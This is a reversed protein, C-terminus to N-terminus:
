RRKLDNIKQVLEFKKKPQKELRALKELRMIEKNIKAKEEDKTIQEDLTNDTEIHINGIQTIMNQYVSDLSLGKIEIAIGDADQWGTQFLKGYYVALKVENDYVLVFIIKQEILKSILNINKEDFDKQKLTIQLVFISSVNDDKPISVTNESIEGIIDIRSIDRDFKSRVTTNLNFKRYIASKALQRKLAAKEPINYM